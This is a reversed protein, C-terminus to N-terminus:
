RLRGNGGVSARKLQEPLLAADLFGNNEVTVPGNTSSWLIAPSVALRFGTAETNDDPIDM